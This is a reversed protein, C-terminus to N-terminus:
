DQWSICTAISLQWILNRTATDCNGCIRQSASSICITPWKENWNKRTSSVWELPARWPPGDCAPPPCNKKAINFANLDADARTKGKAIDKWINLLRQKLNFGADCKIGEFTDDDCHRNQIDSPGAKKYDNSDRRICIQWVFIMESPTAEMVVQWSGRQRWRRHQWWWGHRKNNVNM